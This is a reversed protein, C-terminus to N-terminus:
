PNIYSSYDVHYVRYLDIKRNGPANPEPLLNGSGPPTM